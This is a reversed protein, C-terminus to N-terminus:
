IKGHKKLDNLVDLLVNLRKKSENSHEKVFKDYAPLDGNATERLIRIEAGQRCFTGKPILIEDKSAGFLAKALFITSDICRHLPLEEAQRTWKEGTYRMTKISVSDPDYQAVGISIYRVDTEKEYIGDFKEYPMAFVPKHDLHQPLEQAPRYTDDMSDMIYPM